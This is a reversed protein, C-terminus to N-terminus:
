TELSAPHDRVNGRLRPSLGTIIQNFRIVAKTGGCARPYVRDRLYLPIRFSREGALAPISGYLGALQEYLAGNGRLRPSLGWTLFEFVIRETTGGCARPYVGAGATLFRSGKREGALAPISGLRREIAVRNGVNGRLRPSLGM